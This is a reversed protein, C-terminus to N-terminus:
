RRRAGRRILIVGISALGLVFMAIGVDFVQELQNTCPADPLCHGGFGKTSGAFITLIAGVVVIGGALKM